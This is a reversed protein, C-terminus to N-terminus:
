LNRRFLDVALGMCQYAVEPDYRDGEDRMFAHACNLEHWTYSVKAGELADQIKRRGEYPIHPDQRGWIMLLEGRVEAVRRLSDDGGKGLTAGHVDTAFFCAAARVDPQLAARFALHGGLCFGVAGIRGSSRPHNKLAAVLVRADDDFLAVPTDYKLANGREKGQDDYGLVTGAPLDRHYVEPVMVVHGRSAFQVALRRIPATQQFIESYLILGPFRERAVDGARPEYVYTRMPGTPTVLDTSAETVHM